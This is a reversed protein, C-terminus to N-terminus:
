LNPTHDMVKVSRDVQIAVIVLHVNSDSVQVKVGHAKDIYFPFEEGDLVLHPVDKPQRVNVEADKVMKPM